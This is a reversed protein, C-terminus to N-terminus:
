CHVCASVSFFAVSGLVVKHMVFVMCCFFQRNIYLINNLLPETSHGYVVPLVWQRPGSGALESM